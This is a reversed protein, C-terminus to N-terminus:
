EPVLLDRKDGNTGVSTWEFGQETIKLRIRTVNDASAGERIEASSVIVDLRPPASRLKLLESRAELKLQEADIKHLTGELHAIPQDKLVKLATATMADASSHVDIATEAPAAELTKEQRDLAVRLKKSTEPPLVVGVKMIHAKLVTDFAKRMDAKNAVGGRPTEGERPAETGKILVPVDLDVDPLRIRPVAMTRLLPHQAYLEAIRVTELDAQMRAIAIESMLQGLYDGLNSM